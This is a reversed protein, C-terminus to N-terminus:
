GKAELTEGFDSLDGLKANKEKEERWQNMVKNNIAEKTEFFKTMLGQDGERIDVTKAVALIPVFYSNGGMKRRSTTVKNLATCMIQKQRAIAKIHDSVPLFSSGRIYWVSPVEEPMDVKKGEADVPDLLRVTNYLVQNCKVSKHLLEEASGKSVKALEDKTLRGCRFNGETDYFDANLTPAQITQCGFAQQETDWRSYTYLRYFIRLEAEKAYATQGTEPLKLAFQGRPITRGENDEESHNISFRPLGQNESANGADQGTLAALEAVSMNTLSPVVSPKTKMVDQSMM